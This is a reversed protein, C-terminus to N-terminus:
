HFAERVAELYLVGFDSHSLGLIQAEQGKKKEEREREFLTQPSVKLLRPCFCVNGRPIIQGPVRIELIVGM